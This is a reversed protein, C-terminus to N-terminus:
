IDDFNIIEPKDQINDYLDTNKIASRRRQVYITRVAAYYDSTSAKLNAITDLNSARFDIIGLATNAINLTVIDDGIFTTPSIAFDIFRAGVDRLTLPGIFPAMYYMGEPVGWVALTQGFDEQHQLLGFSSAVDLLGLGGLTTNIFFRGSTHLFSKLDGQLVSNAISVPSQLYDLENAILLRFVKPTVTDYTVAIPELAYQDVYDNFSFIVRNFDEHPDDIELQSQMNYSHCGTLFLIVISM